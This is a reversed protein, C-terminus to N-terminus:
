PVVVGFDDMLPSNWPDFGPADAPGQVHVVVLYDNTNTWIHAIRDGFAVEEEDADVWSGLLKQGSYGCLQAPLVSMSSVRAAAMADHEYKGFATAADVQTKAITVTAWVGNPGSLEAGVDGTGKMTSWDTPLAVTIKPAAPDSVSATVGVQPRDAPQCVHNAPVPTRATPLIGPEDSDGPSSPVVTTTRTTANQTVTDGAVPVGDSTRVCAALLCALAIVWGARM